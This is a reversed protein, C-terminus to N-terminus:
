LNETCCAANVTTRSRLFKVHIGGREILIVVAMLKEALPVINFKEKRLVM